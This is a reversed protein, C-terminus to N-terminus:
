TETSTYTPTDQIEKIRSQVRNQTHELHACRVELSVVDQHTALHLRRATKSIALSRYASGHALLRGGVRVTNLVLPTSAVRVLLHLGENIM